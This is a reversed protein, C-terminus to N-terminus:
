WKKVESFESIQLQVANIMLWVVVGLEGFYGVGVVTSVVGAFPPSLLFNIAGVVYAAGAIIQLYGLFRPIFGSKIVLLAFPLLWLGFFISNVSSTDSSLSMFFTALANVQTAGLGSLGRGGHLLTLSAVQDITGLFSIPVSLLALIVMLSAQSKNVGSLLRYLAWALFVEAISAILGSLLAVRFLGESALIKHATATADDAVVLTQPLFFGFISTVVLLAYLVAAARLARVDLQAPLTKDTTQM